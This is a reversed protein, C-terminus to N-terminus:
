EQETVFVTQSASDSIIYYDGADNTLGTIQNAGVQIGRTTSTSTVTSSGWWFNGSSAASPQFALLSRTASPASGDTTLRVASTGVTIAAQKVTTAAPVGAAVTLAGGSSVTASNGGQAITALWPTTNATNGPQVTWTGNQTAAVTGTVTTTPMSDVAVHLNSGTPQVVTVTGSIPQTAPFNSVSVSGIANAGAPLATSITVAGTNVTTVKGNLTSLTAETAAGTPLSVTGSINTINWAGGQNATVSGSVTVSGTIAPITLVDVQLEGAADTKLGRLDIGDTGAVFTAQVPVPDGTPGISPNTSSFTGAVLLNGDADVLLPQLNGSPDEAGVLDTSLPAPSGAISDM